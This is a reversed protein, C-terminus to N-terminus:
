ARIDASCTSKGDQTLVPSTPSRRSARPIRGPMPPPRSEVESPTPETLGFRGAAAGELDIGQSGGVGELVGGGVAYEVERAEQLRAVATRIDYNASVARDVLDDLKSDGLSKWWVAVEVPKGAAAGSPQTSAATSSLDIAGTSPIRFRPCGRLTILRVWSMVILSMSCYHCPHSAQACGSSVAVISCKSRM